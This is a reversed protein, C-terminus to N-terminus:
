LLATIVNTVPLFNHFFSFVVYISSVPTNKCLLVKLEAASLVEAPLSCTSCVGRGDGSREKQRGGGCSGGRREKKAETVGPTLTLSM